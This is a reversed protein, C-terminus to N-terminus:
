RKLSKLAKYESLNDWIYQYLLYPVAWKKILPTMHCTSIELNLHIETESPQILTLLCHLGPHFAAKHQMEDPDESYALTGM